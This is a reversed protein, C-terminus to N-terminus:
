KLGEPYIFHMTELYRRLEASYKHKGCGSFIFMWPLFCMETRGINGFNLAHSLEEYLLFYQHQLGVNERQKDREADKKPVQEFTLEQTGVHAKTVVFAMRQLDEFSPKSQAYDELSQIAPATKNIEVRWSDLRLVIGVHQIVEHMRRFGPNSEIKGTEKPRIQSVFSMLSNEGMDTRTKNPHIFVRWIADAAAMKLHFLGMVYVCFQM